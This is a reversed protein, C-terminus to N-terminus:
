WLGASADVSKTKYGQLLQWSENLDAPQIEQKYFETLATAPVLSLNIWGHITWMRVLNQLQEELNALLGADSMAAHDATRARELMPILMPEWENTWREGIGFAFGDLVRTYEALDQTPPTFTADPTFAAYLYNNVMRCRLALPSGFAHQAITFGDGMAMVVADGALPTLPRPAHIKDWDWYGQIEQPSPFTLQAATTMLLVGEKYGLSFVWQPQRGSVM